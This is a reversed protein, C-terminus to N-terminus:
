DNAFSKAKLGAADLIQIQRREVHVLGEDALSRLARGLVEPVTGLRAAMEAQTAWRRRHVAGEVAQQLLLGALRAEVSRLSLDEVLAMLHLVRQALNKTLRLAFRPDRELYEVVTARRLLWITAAELATVTGLNPSGALVGIENFAEGPGVLRLVQERGSAAIKSSKLWGSEVVYLGACPEGELFVIEGPGYSHRSAARALAALTDEEVASFTPMAALMSLADNAPSSDPM